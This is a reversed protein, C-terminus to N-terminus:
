FLQGFVGPATVILTWVGFNATLAIALDLARTWNIGQAPLARAKLAHAM